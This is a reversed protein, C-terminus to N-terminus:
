SAIELNLNYKRMLMPMPMIMITIPTLKIKIRQSAGNRYYIIIIIIITICKPGVAFVHVNTCLVHITDSWIVENTSCYYVLIRFLSFSLKFIHCTYQTCKANHTLRRFIFGSYENHSFQGKDAACM